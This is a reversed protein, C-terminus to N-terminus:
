KRRVLIKVAVETNEESCGVYGEVNGEVNGVVSGGVNGEVNGGVNGWVDGEVSGKVSGCVNGWVDGWVSGGVNGLVSNWVNGTIKIAHMKGSSGFSIVKEIEEQQEKTFKTM